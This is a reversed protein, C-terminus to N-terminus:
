RGIRIPVESQAVQGEVDTATILVLASGSWESPLAVTAEFHGGFRAGESWEGSADVPAQVLGPAGTVAVRLSGIARGSAVIGEVRVSGQLREGSRPADLFLAVPGNHVRFTRAPTSPRRGADLTRADLWVRYLGDPLSTTDQRATYRVRQPGAETQQASTILEVPAGGEAAFRLPSAGLGDPHTALLDFDLSGRVVAGEVPSTWILRAPPEGFLCRGAPGCHHGTPCGFDGLVNCSIQEEIDPRCSALCLAICIALTVIPARM